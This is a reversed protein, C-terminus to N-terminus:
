LTTESSEHATAHATERREDPWVEDSDAAHVPLRSCDHRM